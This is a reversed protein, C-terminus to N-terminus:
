EEDGVNGEATQQGENTLAAENVRRDEDRVVGARLVTWFLLRFPPLSQYDEKRSFLEYLFSLSRLSGM